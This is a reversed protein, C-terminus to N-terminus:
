TCVGEAGPKGDEDLVCFGLTKPVAGSVGFTSLRKQPKGHNIDENIFYDNPNFHQSCV